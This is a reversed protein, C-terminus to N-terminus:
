EERLAEIPDVQLARRAPLATALVALAGVGLLVAAFTVPDTRAVGHLRSELLASGVLALAAGALIGPIVIKLTERGLWGAVAAPPAGLARRLGIERTRRSVHHHLIGYVGGLCLVLSVVAFASVLFATFRPGALADQRWDELTRVDSLALAPDFARFAARLDGVLSEPAGQTRLAITLRANAFQAQPVYVEPRPADSLSRHRVDGVVGVIEKPTWGGWGLTVRRGLAAGDPIFARVFAENVVAVPPASADDRVTFTRGARLPIDLAEIFGESAFRLQASPRADPPNPFEKVEVSTNNDVGTLPVSQAFAVATV